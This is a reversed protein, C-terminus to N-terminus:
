DLEDDLDDILYNGDVIFNYDDIKKYNLNMTMIMSM